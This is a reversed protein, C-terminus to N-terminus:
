RGDVQIRSIDALREFAGRVSLLLALRNERVAADDDNVMVGDFFADIPAKLEILAAGIAQFDGAQALAEVRPRTAAVAAHLTREAPEIFTAESVGNRSTREALDPDDEFAKNLINVTRKYAAALPDFADSRRMAALASARAPATPIDPGIVAVVADAIDTPQTSSLMARLRGHVFEVAAAVVENRPRLRKDSGVDVPNPLADWAESFAAELDLAHGGEICIRLVGIAARRLAYPDASGSPVLGLALCGAIADIKDALSLIVGAPATPPADTAGRPRYHAEIADAVAPAEGSLLAYTRGMIGQLSPFEGVMGTTLDAKCLRAAREVTDRLGADGPFLSDCLSVGLSRLRETRDLITGLGDIYRVRALASIRDELDRKQDERFFFKADELRALLVRLNGHVVVEPDPVVMNAVFVFANALKGSADEVAFYRQHSRMSEILVERPVELLAEPFRGMLPVPWEVLQAVEDVLAPDDIVELGASTALSAVGTRITQRREDISAIVHRERLADVWADAHPIDFEDPSLFRHGRSSRGSKVDAFTVDVVADDLLAVIWHVPRGFTESSWGWRMAKKWPIAAFSEGLVREFVRAAPEGERRVVAAVYEGRETTVRTLADAEVGRGRAFGLAAKTPNGDADFAINASPGLLTEEVTEGTPAVDDITLALRRPTAYTRIAGIALRAKEAGRQVHVTLAALADDIEGPPLEEAGIEFLLKM